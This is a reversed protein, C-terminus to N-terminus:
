RKQKYRKGEIKRLRRWGRSQQEKKTEVVNSPAKALRNTSPLGFHTQRSPDRGTGPSHENAKAVFCLASSATRRTHKM